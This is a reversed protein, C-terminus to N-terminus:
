ASCDLSAFSALRKRYNHHSMSLWHDSLAGTKVENETRYVGRIIYTYFFSGDQRNNKRQSVLKGCRIEGRPFRVNLDSGTTLALNAESIVSAEFREITGDPAHDLSVAAAELPEVGSMQDTTQHPAWTRGVIVGDDALAAWEEIQDSTLRWELYPLLAVTQTVFLGRLREARQQGVVDTLLAYGLLEPQTGVFGWDFLTMDGTTPEALTYCSDAGASSDTYRAVVQCHGRNFHSSGSRDGFFTRNRPRTAM